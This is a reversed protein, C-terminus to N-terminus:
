STCCATDPMVVNGSSASVGTTEMDERLRCTNAIVMDPSKDSERTAAKQQKINRVTANVVGPLCSLLIMVQFGDPKWTAENAEM